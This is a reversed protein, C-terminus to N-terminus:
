RRHFASKLKEESKDVRQQARVASAPNNLSALELLPTQVARIWVGVDVGLAPSPPTTKTKHQRQEERGEVWCPGGTGANITGQGQRRTPAIRGSGPQDGGEARLADSKDSCRQPVTDM